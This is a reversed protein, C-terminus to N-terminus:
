CTPKKPLFCFSFRLGERREETVRGRTLEQQRDGASLTRVQKVDKHEMRVKKEFNPGGWLAIGAASLVWLCANASAPLAERAVFNTSFCLKQAASLSGQRHFTTLFSGQPSWAVRFETWIAKGDQRERHGDYCLSSTEKEMPDVWFVETESGHRLM